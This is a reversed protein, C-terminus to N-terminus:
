ISPPFLELIRAALEPHRAAYEAATPRDGRAGRELYEEALREFPDLGSSTTESAMEAGVAFRSRALACRRRM